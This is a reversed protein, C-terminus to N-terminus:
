VGLVKWDMVFTSTVSRHYRSMHLITLLFFLDSRRVLEHKSKPDFGLAKLWTVLGVTSM